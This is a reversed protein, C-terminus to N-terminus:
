AYRWGIGIFTLGVVGVVLEVVQTRPASMGGGVAALAVLTLIIWGATGLFAAFSLGRRRFLYGAHHKVIVYLGTGLLVLWVLRGAASM